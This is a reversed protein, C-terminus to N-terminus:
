ALRKSNTVYQLRSLPSIYYDEDLFRLIKKLEAKNEPLVIAEMGNILETVLSINFELAVAKIQNIPVNELIGSQQILSVKRRVWSDASSILVNLDGVKISPIAAFDTIDNDTAVRYHETLDFIQRATHFSFFKLDRGKLIASLKSDVTIGIGDVKKYVNSSHFLSLGRTSIIKRKDFHQILVVGVGNADVYGTFLARIDSFIEVDPVIEPVGLPNAIADNLNDIDDYNSIVLVEDEEPKYKGDFPLENAGADNFQKEQQSLYATLESQVDSSLPFRCVRSGPVDTLAFLNFPM